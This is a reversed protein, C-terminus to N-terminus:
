WWFSVFYFTLENQTEVYKEKIHEAERAIVKSENEDLPRRNFSVAVEKKGKKSPEELLEIRCHFLSSNLTLQVINNIPTNIFTRFCSPLTSAICM